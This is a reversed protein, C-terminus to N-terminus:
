TRWSRGGSEAAGSGSAQTRHHRHRSSRATSGRASVSVHHHLPVTLRDGKLTQLMTESEFYSRGEAIAILEGRLGGRDRCFIRNLPLCCSTRARPPLCSLPRRTVASVKLMSMAAARVRSRPRTARFDRVGHTQKLDDIAAAIDSFDEEWISVGGAEFINRYRRSVRACNDSM